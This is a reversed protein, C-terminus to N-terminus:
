AVSYTFSLIDQAIPAYKITQGQSKNPPTSIATTLHDLTTCNKDLM